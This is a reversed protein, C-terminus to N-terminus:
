GKQALDLRTSLAEGQQKFPLVVHAAVALPVLDGFDSVSRSRVRQALLLQPEVWMAPLRM